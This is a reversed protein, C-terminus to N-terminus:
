ILYICVIVLGDIVQIHQTVKNWETQGGHLSPLSRGAQVLALVALGAEQLTVAQDLLLELVDEVLEEDDFLGEHVICTGAKLQQIVM